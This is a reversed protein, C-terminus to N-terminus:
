YKGRRVRWSIHGKIISLGDRCICMWEFESDQVTHPYFPAEWMVKHRLNPAPRCSADDYGRRKTLTDLLLHDISRSWRRLHAHGLQFLPMEYWRLTACTLHDHCSRRCNTLVDLFVHRESAVPPLLSESCTWAPFLAEWFVKHRLNFSQPEICWRVWSLLLFHAHHGLCSSRLDGQLSADDDTLADLLLHDHGVAFFKFIPFSSRLDGQPM